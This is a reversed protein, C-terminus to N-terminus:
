YTFIPIAIRRNILGNGSINRSLTLFGASSLVEVTSTSTNFASLMVRTTQPYSNGALNGVYGASLSNSIGNNFSRFVSLNDAFTTYGLASFAANVSFFSPDLSINDNPITFDTFKLKGASTDFFNGDASLTIKGGLDPVTIDNLTLQTGNFDFYNRDINVSLGRSSVSLGYTVTSPTAASLFLNNTSLKGGSQIITNGDAIATAMNSSIGNVLVNLRNTGDYRISTGDTQPSLQMWSSVIAPNNGTLQWYISNELVTDGIEAGTLTTKLTTAHFAKNGVVVGGTSASDGVFVRKTDITYGLEGQDLVITKRQSNTGRRIKFKILDVEPM